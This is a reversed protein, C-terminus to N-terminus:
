GGATEAPPKKKGATRAPSDRWMFYNRIGFIPEEGVVEFGFRRYLRVNASSETELYAGVGLGDVHACFYELLKSGIGKGQDLPHVGLPDIHWHPRKPDRRKWAARFKVVRLAVRGTLLLAPLMEFGSIGSQRCQPWAVMRLVGVMRGAERAVVVQGPKHRLLRTFGTQMGRRQKEGTGGAVHSSFPTAIFARSLLDAAQRCAAPEMAAIKLEGM